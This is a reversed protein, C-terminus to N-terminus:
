GLFITTQEQTVFGQIRSVRANRPACHLGAFSCHKTEDVGVDHTSNLVAQELASM